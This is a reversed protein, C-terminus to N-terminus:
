SVSEVLDSFDDFADFAPYRYLIPVFFKEILDPRTRGSWKTLQDGRGEAAPQLMRPNRLIFSTASV